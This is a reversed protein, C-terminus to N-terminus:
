NFHIDCKVLVDTGSGKSEYAHGIEKFHEGQVPNSSPVAIFEARGPASGSAIALYGRTATYGKRLLVQCISGNKWVWVPSGDPIGSEAIVGIADFGEDELSVSDDYDHCTMVLSGKVSASGTRNIIRTQLGREGTVPDSYLRVDDLIDVKLAMRENFYELPVGCCIVGNIETTEIEGSISM